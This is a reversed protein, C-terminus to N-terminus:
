LWYMALGYTDWISEEGCQSQKATFFIGGTADCQRDTKSNKELAYGVYVVRCSSSCLMTRVFTAGNLSSYVLKGVACSKNALFM